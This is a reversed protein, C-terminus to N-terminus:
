KAMSFNIYSVTSQTVANTITLSVADGPNITVTSSTTNCGAGNSYGGAGAQHTYDCSVSGISISAHYFEAANSTVVLDTPLPITVITTQTATWTGPTNTTADRSSTITQTFATYGPPYSPKQTAGASGGSKGCGTIVLLIVLYRM